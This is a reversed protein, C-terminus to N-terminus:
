SFLCRYWFLNYTSRCWRFLNYSSRCLWLVNYSSRCWWLLNYSSRCLWLILLNCSKVLYTLSVLKNKESLKSFYGPALLPFWVVFYPYLFFTQWHARQLILLVTSHMYIISMWASFYFSYTFWNIELRENLIHRYVFM